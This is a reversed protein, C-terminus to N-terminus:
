PGSRAHCTERDDISELAAGVARYEGEIASVRAGAGLVNGLKADKTFIAYESYRAAMEALGIGHELLQERDRPIEHLVVLNAISAATLLVLTMNLLNLKAALRTPRLTLM